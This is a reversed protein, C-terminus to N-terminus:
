EEAEEKEAQLTEMEEQLSQYNIVHERCALELAEITDAKEALDFEITELQDKLKEIEKKVSSETEKLGKTAEVRVNSILDEISCSSETSGAVTDADKSVIADEGSTQGTDGNTSTSTSASTRAGAVTGSKQRIEETQNEIKLEILKMAVKMEEHVSSVKIAIRRIPAVDGGGQGQSQGQEEARKLQGMMNELRRISNDMLENTVAINRMMVDKPIVGGGAATPPRSKFIKTELRSIIKDKLELQQSLVDMTSTHEKEKEDLAEKVAEKVAERIVDEAVPAPLAAASITTSDGETSNFTAVSVSASADDAAGGSGTSMINMNDVSSNGNGNGNEGDEDSLVPVTSVTARRRHGKEKKKGERDWPKLKRNSFRAQRMQMVNQELSEITREQRSIQQQLEDSHSKSSEELTKNKTIMDRNFEEVQIRLATERKATQELDKYYGKDVQIISSVMSRTSSSRSPSSRSPSSRLPSSSSPAAAAATTPAENGEGQKNTEALGEEESKSEGAEAAATATADGESIDVAVDVEMNDEGDGDGDGDEDGDSINNLACFHAELVALKINREEVEKHKKTLKEVYSRKEMNLEETLAKHSSQLQKHEKTVYNLGQKLQDILRKQAEEVSMTTLGNHTNSNMHTNTNTNTNTSTNTTINQRMPSSPSSGSGSEAGSKDDNDNDNDNDNGNAQEKMLDEVYRNPDMNLVHSLEKKKAQHRVQDVKKVNQILKSFNGALGGGGGGSGNNLFSMPDEFDDCSSIPVFDAPVTLSMPPAFSFSDSYDIKRQRQSANGNPTNTNSSIINPAGALQSTYTSVAVAAPTSSEDANVNVNVGANINSNSNGRGKQLM